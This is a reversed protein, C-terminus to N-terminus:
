SEYIKYPDPHPNLSTPGAINRTAPSVVAMIRKLNHRRGFDADFDIPSYMYPLGLARRLRIVWPKEVVEWDTDVPVGHGTHCYV